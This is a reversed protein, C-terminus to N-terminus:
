RRLTAKLRNINLLSEFCDKIDKLIIDSNFIAKSGAGESGLICIGLEAEKIMLSDNNGNGIAVCYRAGLKQLFNLKDKSGNEKSIIHIKFKSDKFTNSVTGYTDATLIYIELIDSLKDLYKRIEETVKGDVALTGNYDFVAYKIEIKKFSPIDIKIM